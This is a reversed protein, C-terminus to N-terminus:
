RRIMRYASTATARVTVPPVLNYFLRITGSGNVTVEDAGEDLQIGDLDATYGHARLDAVATVYAWQAEGAYTGPDLRVEGTNQFHAVDVQRAAAEAGADCAIQIRTRLNFYRPADIALGSLPLLVTVIVLANWVMDGARGFVFSSRRLVPSTSHAKTKRGQDKTQGAM